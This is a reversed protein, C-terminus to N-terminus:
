PKAEAVQPHEITVTYRKLMDQYFKENAALRRANTWERHVADRVDALAPLGSETRESVLVLHVGYGSEVPGLWRGVALGGLQTAFPEGFQKAVESRPMAAFQHELLFSDGLTSPDITAGAQHLKALLVAIDRALNAGHKEPNLYVQTFTFRQEVRFTGPHAQLYATLDADTPTVQAASDESVFEMKQRLRRRIVTDDRDLGLAIAERSYVEDRVLDRVLGALEDPTPPRQWTRAFGTALHEIQGRTVLIRGREGIDRSRPLLGYAVFIAIGLVLFHLLPERLIRKM